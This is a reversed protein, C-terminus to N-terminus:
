GQREALQIILFTGGQPDAVAAFPGAPSDVRDMMVSGGLEKVKAVSAELDAVAFYVAWHSPVEPPLHPGKPLAGAITRGGVSFETYPFPGGEHTEAGYGFVEAYFAKAADVDTTTLENWSFAGPENALEAGKHTGPQWVGFFAGTPDTFVAMRGFDMVDM